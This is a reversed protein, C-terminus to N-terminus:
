LYIQKIFLFTTHAEGVYAWPQLSVETTKTLWVFKFLYILTKYLHGM